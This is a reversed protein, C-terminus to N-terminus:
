AKSWDVFNLIEVTEISHNKMFKGGDINESNGHKCTMGKTVGMLRCIMPRAPYIMCHKDKKARFPCDVAGSQTIGLAYADPRRSLFSRIEAIEEPSAPIVGCCEGCNICSTHAPINLLMNM